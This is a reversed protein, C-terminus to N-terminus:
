LKAQPTADQLIFEAVVKALNEPVPSLENHVEHYMGQEM